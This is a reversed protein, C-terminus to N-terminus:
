PAGPTASSHTAASSTTPAPPPPLQLPPLKLAPDFQPPLPPRHYLVGAAEEAAPAPEPPPIPAPAPVLAPAPTARASPAASGAASGPHSGGPRASLLWTLPRAASSAPAAGHPTGAAARHHAPPISIPPIIAAPHAAHTSRAPYPEARAGPPAYHSAHTSAPAPATGAQPQLAGPFIISPAGPGYTPATGASAYSGAAPYHSVSSHSQPLAYVGFTAGPAAPPLKYYSYNSPGAQAQARAQAEM